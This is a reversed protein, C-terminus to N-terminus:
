IIFKKVVWLPLFIRHYIRGIKMKKLKEFCQPDPSHNKKLNKAKKKKQKASIM